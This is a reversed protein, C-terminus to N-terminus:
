YLYGTHFPIVFPIIFSNLAVIRSIANWVCHELNEKDKILYTEYIRLSYKIVTLEHLFARFCANKAIFRLLRIDDSVGFGIRM